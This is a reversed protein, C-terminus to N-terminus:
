PPLARILDVAMREPWNPQLPGDMAVMQVLPGAGGAERWRAAVLDARAVAIELMLAAEAGAKEGAKEGAEAVLAEAVARCLAEALAPDTGKARECLLSGAGEGAGAGVGADAGARMAVPIASVAALGLCLGAAWARGSRVGRRARM